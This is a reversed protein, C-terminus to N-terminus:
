QHILELHTCWEASLHQGYQLEHSCWTYDCSTRCLCGASNCDDISEAVASLTWTCATAQRKFLCWIVWCISQQVGGSRQKAQQLKAGAQGLCIVSCFHQQRLIQMQCKRAHCSPSQFCLPRGFCCCMCELHVFLRIQTHLSVSPLLNCCMTSSSTSSSGLMVAAPAHPGATAHVAIMHM